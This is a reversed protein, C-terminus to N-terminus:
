WQTRLRQLEKQLGAAEGSGPYNLIVEAHPNIVYVPHSTADNDFDGASLQRRFSDISAATTGMAVEVGPSHKAISRMQEHTAADAAVFLRQVNNVAAILELRQLCAQRCDADEIIVLSWHDRFFATNIGPGNLQWLAAYGINRPPFIETGQTTEQQGVECASALLATLVLLTSLRTNRM